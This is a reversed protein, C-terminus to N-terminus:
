QRWVKAPINSCFPRGDRATSGFRAVYQQALESARQWEAPVIGGKRLGIRDLDDSVFEAILPGFNGYRHHAASGELLDRAMGDAISQYTNVTLLRMGPRLSYRAVFEDSFSLMAICDLEDTYAAIRLPSTSVVIAARSDGFLLHEKVNTLLLGRDRLRLRNKRRWASFVWRLPSALDSHLEALKRKSLSIAGPDSAYTNNDLTRTKM